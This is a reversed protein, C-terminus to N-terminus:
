RVLAFPQFSSGTENQLSKTTDMITDASRKVIDANSSIATASSSVQGSQDSVTKVKSTINNISSQISNYASSLDTQYNNLSKLIGSSTSADMNESSKKGLADLYNVKTQSGGFTTWAIRDPDNKNTIKSAANQGLKNLQTTYADIRKVYETIDCKIKNLNTISNGIINLQKKLEPVSQDTPLMTGVACSTIPAPTLTVAGFKSKKKKDNEKSVIMFIVLGVVVLLLLIFPMEKKTINM